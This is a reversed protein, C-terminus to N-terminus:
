FQHLSLSICGECVSKSSCWAAARSPMKRYLSLMSDLVRQEGLASKMRIAEEAYTKKWFSYTETPTAILRIDHEPLDRVNVAIEVARTRRFMLIASFLLIMVAFLSILGIRKMSSRKRFDPAYFIDVALNIAKVNPWVSKRLLDLIDEKAHVFIAPM